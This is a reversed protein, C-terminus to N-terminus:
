KNEASNSHLSRWVNERCFFSVIPKMMGDFETSLTSTYAGMNPFGIWDGCHMDPLLVEELICDINAGSPGWLTSEFLADSETDKLPFPTLDSAAHLLVFYMFTQFVGENVYYMIHEVLPIDTHRDINGDKNKPHLKVTRKGIICTALTFASTVFYRGPEAIINVMIDSFYTDLAKNIVSSTEEFNVDDSDTGPFGGGIDLLNMKFGLEIGTKFIERAVRITECYVTPDECGSGVHFSVGVVDLQFTKAAILLDRSESSFCGFKKSLDVKVKLTGEPKIRLLLKSTPYVAKIKHLEEENDFTMLEVGHEAAYRISTIPKITNAFVIRSPHVGMNLIFMIEAQSACDFNVGLDALIKLVPYETNCKVAYYPKVRPLYHEWRQYREIIDGIDALLFSRDHGILRLSFIQEITGRRPRFGAKEEAIQYEITNKM